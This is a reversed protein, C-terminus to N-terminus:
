ILKLRRSAIIIYNSKSKYISNKIDKKEEKIIKFTIAKVM